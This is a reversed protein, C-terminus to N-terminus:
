PLLRGDRTGCLCEPYRASRSPENSLFALGSSAKWAQGFVKIGLISRLGTTLMETRTQIPMWFVQAMGPTKTAESM